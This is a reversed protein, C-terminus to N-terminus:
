QTSPSDCETANINIGHGGSYRPRRSKDLRIQPFHTPSARPYRSAASRYRFPKGYLFLIIQKGASLLTVLTAAGVIGIWLAGNLTKDIDYQLYGGGRETSGFLTIQGASVGKIPAPFEVDLALNLYEDRSEEKRGYSSFGVEWNIIRLIYGQFQPPQQRRHPM